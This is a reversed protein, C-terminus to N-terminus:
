FSCCSFSNMAGEPPSLDDDRGCHAVLNLCICNELYIMKTDNAAATDAETHFSELPFSLRPGDPTREEENSESKSCVIVLSRGEM